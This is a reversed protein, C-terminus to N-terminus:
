FLTASGPSGAPIGPEAGALLLLQYVLLQLVLLLQTGLAHRM